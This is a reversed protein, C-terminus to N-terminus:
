SVRRKSAVKNLFRDRDIVFREHRGSAIQDHADHASVEFTLRRGDVEILRAWMKVNMGVPTAALHRIDVGTGVTAEHPEVHPKLVECAALELWLVLMPTALVPVGANGYREASENESVTWTLTAEHGTKLEGKM